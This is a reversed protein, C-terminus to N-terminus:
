HASRPFRGRSSGKDPPSFGESSSVAARFFNSSGPAPTKLGRSSNRSSTCITRGAHPRIAAPDLRLPAKEHIDEVDTRACRLSRLALGDLAVLHLQTRSAGSGGRGRGVREGRRGLGVGDRAVDRLDGLGRVHALVHEAAHALQEAVAHEVRGLRRLAGRLADEVGSPTSPASGPRLVRAAPASIRRKSVTCFRWFRRPYDTKAPQSTCKSHNVDSTSTMCAPFCAGRRPNTRTMATTRETPVIALAWTDRRKENTPPLGPSSNPVAILEAPSTFPSPKPSTM